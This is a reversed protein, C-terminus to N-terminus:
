EFMRRWYMYIDFYLSTVLQRQGHFSPTPPLVFVAGGVRLEARTESSQGVGVGSATGASFLVPVWQFNLDDRFVGHLCITSVSTYYWENKVGTSFSTWDYLSVYNIIRCHSKQRSLTKPRPTSISFLPSISYRLVPFRLQLIQHARMRTTLWTRRTAPLVTRVWVDDTQTVSLTPLYTCRDYIGEFYSCRICAM